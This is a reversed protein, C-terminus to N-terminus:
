QMVLFAGFAAAVGAVVRNAGETCWVTYETTPLVPVFEQIKWTTSTSDSICVEMRGATTLDLKFEGRNPTVTKTPVVAACCATKGTAAVCAPTPRVPTDASNKSCDSGQQGTTPTKYIDWAKLVTNISSKLTTLDSSYNASSAKPLATVSNMILKTVAKNEDSSTILEFRKSLYEVISLPGKGDAAKLLGISGQGKIYADQQKDMDAVNENIVGKPAFPMLALGTDLVKKEQVRADAYQGLKLTYWKGALRANIHDTILPFHYDEVFKLFIERVKGNLEINKTLAKYILKYESEPSTGVEFNYFGYNKSKFDPAIVDTIMALSLEIFEAAWHEKQAATMSTDKDAIAKAAKYNSTLLTEVLAAWKADKTAILAKM